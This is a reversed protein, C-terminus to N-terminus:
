DISYALDVLKPYIAMHRFNKSFYRTADKIFEHEESKQATLQSRIFEVGGRYLSLYYQFIAHVSINTTPFLIKRGKYKQEIKKIAQDYDGILAAEYFDPNEDKLFVLYAVFFLHFDSRKPANSAIARIQNAIKDLERLKSGFTLALASFLIQSSDLEKEGSLVTDDDPKVYDRDLKMYPHPNFNCVHGLDQIRLEPPLWFNAKIWADTDSSDLSFEADFFRKLYKESAFGAGYIAKIAHRLQTTDTAIIFKCRDVDFLHKIRELLEIAFTPRCRDLEDIFIYAPKAKNTSDLSDQASILLEQFTKKFNTVSDRAEKNSEILKEVARESADAFAENSFAEALLGMDVGIAKKALGKALAPTAALLAKSAKQTFNKIKEDASASPGIITKLQERISSVLSIFADGTFDNEWANFYICVRHNRQECMWNELFFTKGSGWPANINLVTVTNSDDLYRTLFRAVGQRNM